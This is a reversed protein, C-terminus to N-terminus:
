SGCHRIIHKRVDYVLQDLSDEDLTVSFTFKDKIYFQAINQDKERFIKISLDKMAHGREYEYESNPAFGLLRCCHM